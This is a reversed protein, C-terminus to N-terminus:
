TKKFAGIGSAWWGSTDGTWRSNINAGGLDADTFIRSDFEASRGIGLHEGNESWTGALADIDSVTLFSQTASICCLSMGVLSAPPSSLPALADVVTGIGNQAITTVISLGAGVGKVEIACAVLDITGVGPAITVTHSAGAGTIKPCYYLTVSETNIGGPSVLVRTYTNGKNDTCATTSFGAGYSSAVGVLIGRAAATSGPFTVTVQTSGTIASKGTSQVVALPGASDDVSAAAITFPQTASTGGATTVTLTRAGLPAGPDIALDATLSTPSLVHINVVSVGSGSLMVGTAATVFNTGTLTVTVMTGQTGTNPAVLTLTPAAPTAVATGCTIAQLYRSVLTSMDTGGPEGYLTALYARESEVTPASLTALHKSWVTTHDCGASPVSTFVRAAYHDSIETPTLARPYIAVEDLAGLFHNTSSAADGTFDGLVLPSVATINWGAAPVALSNRLVGDVYLRLFDTAGRELVGVAHHWQNDMWSPAASFVSITASGNAIGFYLNAADAFLNMGANLTSAVKNDLLYMTDGTSANGKVWCELTVPSTGLAALVGTQIKGTSGNFLMATTGDALAGPQALTVGGSITGPASGASDAATLGSAENLKWYNSPSHSLILESYTM